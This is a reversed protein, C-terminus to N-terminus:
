SFLHLYDCHILAKQGKKGIAVKAANSSYQTIGLGVECGDEGRIRVLDGKSFSGEIKVVGVPLLSVAKGTETLVDCACRNITVVGKEKGAGEAVWRKVSSTTNKAPFTTGLEKGALLKIIVDPETGRAIHTAIGLGALKQANRCKTQMGGRGFSSKENRIHDKWDSESAVTKLVTTMGDSGTIQIGDVSTLLLLADAGVMSAILAALEDNDTFMLEGISVTDNENVVPVIGEQLLASLCDRMNLYHRRDRFDEKTALVQACAVNQKRFLSGYLHILEAQGVAALVQRAEVNSLKRAPQVIARGAAMAGSSVLIVQAGSERAKIIQRVLSAMVAEDLLGSQKTLVNTGVKVVIRHYRSKVAAPYRNKTKEPATLNTIRFLNSVLGDLISFISAKAITM